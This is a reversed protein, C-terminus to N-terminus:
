NKIIKRVLLIDLAILFITLILLYIRLKSIIYLNFYSSIKKFFTYNDINSEKTSQLLFVMKEPPLNFKLKPLKKIEFRNLYNFINKRDLKPIILYNGFVNSFSFGIKDVEPHTNLYESLKKVIDQQPLNISQSTLSIYIDSKGFNTQNQEQLNFLILLLCFIVVRIFVNVLIFKSLTFISRSILYYRLFLGLYLILFIGSLILIPQNEFM